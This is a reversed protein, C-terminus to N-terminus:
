RGRFYFSGMWHNGCRHRAGDRMQVNETCTHNTTQVSNCGGGVRGHAIRDDSICTDKDFRIRTGRRRSQARRGHCVFSTDGNAATSLLARAAALAISCETTRVHAAGLGSIRSRVNDRIHGWRFCRMYSNLARKTGSYGWRSNGLEHIIGTGSPAGLIHASSM